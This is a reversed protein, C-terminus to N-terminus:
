QPLLKNVQRFFRHHTASPSADCAHMPQSRNSSRRPGGPDRKGVCNEEAVPRILSRSAQLDIALLRGWRHCGATLSVGISPGTQFQIYILILGFM